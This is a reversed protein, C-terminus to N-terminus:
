QEWFLRHSTREAYKEKIDQMHDNMVQNLGIHLPDDVQISNRETSEQIKEEMYKERKESARLGSKLQFAM